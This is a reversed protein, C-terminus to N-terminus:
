NADRELTGAFAHLGSVTREGGHESCWALFGNPDVEKLIVRQSPVKRIQDDLYTSLKFWEDYTSPVDPGIIRRFAEFDEKRIFARVVTRQQDSL